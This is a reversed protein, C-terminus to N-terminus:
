FEILYYTTDHPPPPPLVVLENYNKSTDQFFVWYASRSEKIPSTYYTRFTDVGQYFSVGGGGGGGGVFGCVLGCVYVYVYIGVGVM